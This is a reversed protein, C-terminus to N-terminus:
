FFFPRGPRGWAGAEILLFGPPTSGTCAGMLSKKSVLRNQLFNLSIAKGWFLLELVCRARFGDQLSSVVEAGVASFAPQEEWPPSWPPLQQSHVAQFAGLCGASMNQGPGRARAAKLARNLLERLSRSPLYRRGM